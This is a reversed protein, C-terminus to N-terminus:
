GLASRWGSGVGARETELQHRTLDIKAKLLEQNEETRSALQKELEEIRNEYAHLRKNMPAHLKDLRQVLEVLESAASQQAKLLENRQAALEQVVADKVAQMLHPALASQAIIQNAVATGDRGCVPCQVPAPMQGNVPYVDFAYKQGCICVIKVLVPSSHASLNVM